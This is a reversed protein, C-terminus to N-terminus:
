VPINKGNNSLPFLSHKTFVILRQSLAIGLRPERLRSGTYHTSYVFSLSTTCLPPQFSCSVGPAMAIGYFTWITRGEMQPAQGYTGGGVGVWRTSM